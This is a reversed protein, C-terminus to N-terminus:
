IENRRRRPEIPSVSSLWKSIHTKIFERAQVVPWPDEPHSFRFDMHHCGGPINFAQVSSSVNYLISGSSYPDMLGNTFVINSSSGAGISGFTKAVYDFLPQVGWRALCMNSYTTPNFPEAEFFDNDRGLSCLPTVLESCAQVPNAPLPNGVKDPYPYNYLALYVYIATLWSKLFYVEQPNYLPRCLRWNYSLWDRGRPYNAARNIAQWSRSIAAACAPSTANFVASVRRPFENCATSQQVVPASSAVAGLVLHPYRVKMWAALAGSYGFGMTIVPSNSLLSSSSRLHIILNAFDKLTQEVTLYGLFRLSSFAYNGYPKSWGQYRHEAFVIMAKYIAAVEWVFGANEAFFEITEEGGTVFFIPGVNSDWYTDNVLYRLPFTDNSSHSFHDVQMLLFETRYFVALGQPVLALVAALVLSQCM